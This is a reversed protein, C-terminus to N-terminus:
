IREEQPALLIRGINHKKEKTDNQKTKWKISHSCLLCKFHIKLLIKPNECVQTHTDAQRDAQRDTDEDIEIKLNRRRQIGDNTQSLALTQRVTEDSQKSLETLM